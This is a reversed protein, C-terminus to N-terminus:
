SLNCGGGMSLSVKIAQLADLGTGNRPLNWLM